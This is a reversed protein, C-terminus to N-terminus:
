WDNDDAPMGSAKNDFTQNPTELGITISVPSFHFKQFLIKQREFCVDDVNDSKVLKSREGHVNFM